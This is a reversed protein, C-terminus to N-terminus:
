DYGYSAQESCTREHPSQQSSPQADRPPALHGPRVKRGRSLAAKHLGAKDSRSCGATPVSPQLRASKGTEQFLSQGGASAGM